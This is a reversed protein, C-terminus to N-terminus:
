VPRIKSWDRHSIQGTTADAAYVQQRNQRPDNPIGVYIKRGDKSRHMVIARCYVTTGSNEIPVMIHDKPKLGDLWDRRQKPTM